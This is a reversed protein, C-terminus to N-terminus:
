RNLPVVLSTDALHLVAHSQNRGTTTLHVLHSRLITDDQILRDLVMRWDRRVPHGNLHISLMSPSIRPYITLIHVIKQGLDEHLAPLSKYPSPSTVTDTSTSTNQAPRM